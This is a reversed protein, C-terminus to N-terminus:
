SAGKFWCLVDGVGFLGIAAEANSGDDVGGARDGPEAAGAGAGLHQLLHGAGSADHDVDVLEVALGTLFDGAQDAGFGGHDGASGGAAEQELSGGADGAVVGALMCRRGSVSPMFFSIMMCVM